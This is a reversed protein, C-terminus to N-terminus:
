ALGLPDANAILFEEGLEDKCHWTVQANSFFNQQGAPYTGQEVGM